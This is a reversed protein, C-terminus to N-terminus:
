RLDSRSPRDLSTATAFYGRRYVVTLVDDDVGPDVMLLQYLTPKRIAM